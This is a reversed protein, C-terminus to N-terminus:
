QYNELLWRAVGDSDNSGIVATAIAKLADDANAYCEDAIRFMTEDNSGDGFCVIRDCGLMSKLQLIANAKTAQEPMIELWWRGSYMDCFMLTRFHEQLATRAASLKEQDDICRFYFVDGDCLADYSCQTYRMDGKQQMLFERCSESLHDSCFRNKEADNEVIYVIPCVDHAQLTAFIRQADAASFYTSFLRRGTGTEMIHAGNKVIVPIEPAIDPTVKVATPFSRATAYSFIMGQDRLRRIADVTFASLTQDSRLLTGDLDSVYLTKSM